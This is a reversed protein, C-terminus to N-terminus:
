PNETKTKQFAEKYADLLRAALAERDIVRAASKPLPDETVLFGVIRKQPSIHGNVESLLKKMEWECASATGNPHPLAQLKARNPRIVAVPDCSGAEKGNPFGIVACEKVYPSRLLKRETAEPFLRVGGVLPVANKTNGTIHLFGDSDVQGTHGTYLWGGRLVRETAEPAKYYGLMVNPARYRIEGSGDDEQRDRIELLTGPMVQGMASECTSSDRTLAVLATCEPPGYAPLVQIGFTRFTERAAPLVSVGNTIMKKLKGGFSKHFVSFLGRKAAARMQEAPIADVTKVANRLKEEIGLEQINKQLQRHLTEVLLPTCLLVTPNVRHADRPIARLGDGFAVTAGCMMPALLGCTLEFPMQLPLVSLFVDTSDVRIMKCLTEASFCLNRQSLMVTRQKWDKGSGAILVCMRMPDPRIRLHTRDGKAMREKGLAVLAPIRDFGVAKVTPPLAHLKEACSPAYFVTEADCHATLEALATKSLSPAAPVAVGGSCVVAFFLLALDVSNEGVIVTHRGSLGEACLATVMADVRESFARYGVPEYENGKKQLFLTKDGFREAATRYLQKLSEAHSTEYNQYGGM